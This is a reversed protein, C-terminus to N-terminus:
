RRRRSSKAPKELRFDLDERDESIEVTLTSASNYEAPIYSEIEDVTESSGEDAKIQRGTPREGEIWVKYKGAVPGDYASIEYRGDKLDAGVTKATPNGEPIFGVSGMPVPQGDYTVEGSLAFQEPGSPGCGGCSVCCLSALLCLCRTFNICPRDM